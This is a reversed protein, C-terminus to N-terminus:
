KSNILEDLKEIQDETLRGTSLAKQILVPVTLNGKKIAEVWAPSNKDFLDQPYYQPINDVELRKITYGSRRSRTVTLMFTIEHQDIDSLHSIRIGGVAVGGFKISPDCYLTMSKGIWDKGNDGWSAILVRRMSKCPRYPRHGHIHIDIPQDTSSSRKVGTVTVTLPGTLLDDANLQDSKPEITQALSDSM